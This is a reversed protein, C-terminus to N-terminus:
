LPRIACGVCVSWRDTRTGGHKMHDIAVREVVAHLWPSTRVDSGCGGANRYEICITGFRNSGHFKARARCAKRIPLCTGIHNSYHALLFGSAHDDPKLPLAELPFRL